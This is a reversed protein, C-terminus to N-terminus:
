CRATIAGDRCTIPSRAVGSRFTVDCSVPVSDDLGSSSYSSSSSAVLVLRLTSHPSWTKLIQVSSSPFFRNGHCESLVEGLQELRSLTCSVPMFIVAKQSTASHLRTAVSRRKLPAWQGWDDQHQLCYGRRFRRYFETVSSPAVVWLARMKLSYHVLRQWVFHENKTDLLM